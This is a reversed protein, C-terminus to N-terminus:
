PVETLLQPATDLAVELDRARRAATHEELTRERAALAIRILEEDSRELAGLVDATTRAILIQSGPEFFEELGAWRDTLIATGCAAAEFLRGSPCYGMEALPGRTINLTLRSSSFFAPHEGPPLYSFTVINDTWLAGAPYFAGGMVFRGEPRRRAPEIFLRELAAQRDGAYTGLYSLDARYHAEPAAPRHAEPDVHGYLPLVVRAGLEERLAALAKGGTHSFVLDYDRLGRPGLYPVAGSRGLTVATDIDYFTRYQVTTEFMLDAVELADPCRSTVLGLDAGQLARRAAERAQDWSKYFVLKGGPLETLDRHEEYNPVDREFFTVHHGRQILARCLGRWLNAHGNGWSSSITLGFIVLRM